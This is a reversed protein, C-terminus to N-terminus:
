ARRPPAPPQRPKYKPLRAIEDPLDRLVIPEYQKWASRIKAESVQPRDHAEDWGMEKCVKRVAAALTCGLGLHVFVSAGLLMVERTQYDLKQGRGRRGNLLLARNADGTKAARRAVRQVDAFSGIFDTRVAPGPYAIQRFAEILYPKFPQPIPYDNELCNAVQLLISRALSPDGARAAALWEEFMELQQATWESM